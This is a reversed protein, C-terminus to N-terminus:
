GDCSDILRPESLLLTKSLACVKSGKELKPFMAVRLLCEEADFASGLSAFSLSSVVTLLSREADAQQELLTLNADFFTRHMHFARAEEDAESQEDGVLEQM